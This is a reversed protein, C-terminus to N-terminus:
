ISYNKEKKDINEDNNQQNKNFITDDSIIKNLSSTKNLFNFKENQIELQENDISTKKFDQENINNNKNKNKLLYKKKYIKRNIKSNYILSFFLFFIHIQKNIQKQKIKFRFIKEAINRLVDFSFIDM